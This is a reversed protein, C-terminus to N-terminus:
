IALASSLKVPIPDSPCPRDRTLSWLGVGLWFTPFLPMTMGSETFSNLLGYTLLACVCGARPDDAIRFQWAGRLLGGTVLALLLALGVAGVSLITELYASHAERVGWEVATSVRDIRDPTWFAEYGWGLWFREDVYRALETWIPLRGTLSEAQEARGMLAIQKIESVFDIQLVHGVLAMGAVGWGAFLAAVVPLAPYRSRLFALTGLGLLVGATSTRSKTLVVFAVGILLAATLVVRRRSGTKLLAFSALCLTTLYLGQTNPHLTGAFRYGGSWPRFTGQAIEALVGLGLSAGCVCVAIACYERPSLRRSLGWGGVVCFVFVILRRLTLSFDDTWAISLAPWITAALLLALMVPRPRWRGGTGLGAVVGTAAILFFAVRRVTNGGGADTQMEEATLAFDNHLSVSPNHETSLFCLGVILGIAWTGFSTQRRASARVEDATALVEHNGLLPLAASSAIM